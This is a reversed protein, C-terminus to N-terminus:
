FRKPINKPTVVQIDSEPQDPPAGVGHFALLHRLAARMDDRLDHHLVLSLKESRLLALNDEDLDHAIFVSPSKGAAELAALVAINGGGMSYVGAIEQEGNLQQGVEQATAPSLGGGGSADILEIDPRHKLLEARFATFREEEGQFTHQSLTTLVCRQGGHLLKHMLYAATQGARANNLGAYALRESGPIDTFLTLVPIGKQSLLDIHKRIEESDRAKLCIGQSGRSRIRELCSVTEAATMTESFVFRPRLAAPRFDPLVAETAKRIERTFRAPAEVVIDIFFRRGRAALQAEQRALEEIADTVRRRTQPSVNARNNLVRDITATSLGSQLAIEKVPFRHTM